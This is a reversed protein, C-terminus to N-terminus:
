VDGTALLPHSDLHTAMAADAGAVDGTALLDLLLGRTVALDLRAQARAQDLSLGRAVTAQAAPEVWSEVIGDLFQEHRGQLAQGYLEFFLRETPWLKPSSIHKWWAWAAQKSTAAPDPIFNQLIERHLPQAFQGSM